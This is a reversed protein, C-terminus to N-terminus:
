VAASTLSMYLGPLETRAIKNTVTKPLPQPSWIIERPAKLPGLLRRIESRVTEIDIEGDGHVLAVVREGWQMDEVGFVGCEHVCAITALAREVEAPYINVGGSIIMNKLRDVVVFAGDADYTVLDGTKFYGDDFAAETLEPDRWYGTMVQPGKLWFEGVEGPECDRGDKVVRAKLTPLPYGVTEPRRMSLDCPPFCAMAGIETCGYVQRIRVGKERFRELLSVAVPAGGTMAVRVTSLNAVDWGALDPLRDWIAPVQTMFTIREVEVQKLIRAPDYGREIVSCAGIAMMPILLSLCGGTFALPAVILARDESTFQLGATYSFVYSLITAHTQMTGKPLGTSGSTYLIAALDDPSVAVPAPEGGAALVTMLDSAALGSERASAVILRDEEFGGLDFREALGAGAARSTVIVSCDADAEIARLEFNGFRPNLPVLVAGAMTLGAYAVGWEASNFLLIGVRDGPRVGRRQLEAALSRGKQRLEAWGYRRDECVLAESNPRFKAWYDFLEPLTIM